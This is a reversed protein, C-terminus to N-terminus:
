CFSVQNWGLDTLHADFYDNSMYASYDKEGAVNHIGQAHRVKSM